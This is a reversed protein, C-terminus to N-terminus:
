GVRVQILRPVCGHVHAVLRLDGSKLVLKFSLRGCSMLCCGLHLVRSAAPIALLDKWRKVEHRDSNGAGARVVLLLPNLGHRHFANQRYQM